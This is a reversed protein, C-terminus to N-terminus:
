AAAHPRAKLKKLMTLAPSHSRVRLACRLRLQGAAPLTDAEFESLRQRYLHFCALGLPSSLACTERWRGAMRTRHAADHKNTLRVLWAGAQDLDALTPQAEALIVRLLTQFDAESSQPFLTFFYGRLYRRRDQQVADSQRRSVQGPHIRYQLLISPMNGLRYLPALRLWLEYDCFTAGPRHLHAKLVSARAMVTPQLLACRFLLERRITEPDEPFWLLRSDDGFRKANTGCVDLNRSQMWKGQTALREPLALDDQNFLAIYEGSAAEVGTNLAKSQGRPETSILRIRRDRRAFDEMVRPSGDDSGDDIILFEFDTFTQALISEIAAGVYAVANRVPMVVSIFPSQQPSSLDPM